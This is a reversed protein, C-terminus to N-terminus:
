CRRPKTAGPPLCFRQLDPVAARKIPFRVVKGITNPYTIRVDITIPPQLRRKFFKLLRATGKANTTTSRRAFPCRRGSCRVEVTAGDPADLVRM